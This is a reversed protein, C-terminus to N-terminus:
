FNALLRLLWFVLLLALGAKLIFGKHQRMFEPYISQNRILHAFADVWLLVVGSYFLPSLLNYKLAEGWQGHSIACFARVLGCTPCLRGTLNKILCMSPLSSPELFVSLLFIGTTITLVVLHPLQGLVPRDDIIENGVPACEKKL